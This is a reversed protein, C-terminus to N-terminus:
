FRHINELKFGCRGPCTGVGLCAGLDQNQSYSHLPTLAWILDKYGMYLLCGFLLQMGCLPQMSPCTGSFM